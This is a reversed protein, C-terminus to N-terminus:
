IYLTTEISSYNVVSGDYTRVSITVNYTRHDIPNYTIGFDRSLQYLALMVRQISTSGSVTRTPGDSSGITTNVEATFTGDGVPTGAWGLTVRVTDTDPDYEIGTASVTIGNTFRVLSLDVGVAGPLPVPTNSATIDDNLDFWYTGLNQLGGADLAIGRSWASRLLVITAKLGNQPSTWPGESSQSGYVLKHTNAVWTGNVYANNYFLPRPAHNPDDEYGLATIYHDVIICPYTRALLAQRDEQSGIIFESLDVGYPNANVPDSYRVAIGGIGNEYNYYGVASGDDGFSAFPNPDANQRYEVFDTRRFTENESLGRPYRYLFESDHVNEWTNTHQTLAALSIEIGYYIGATQDSLPGKWMDGTLRGVFPKKVGNELLYYRIPKYKAWKNIKGQEAGHVILGGVSTYGLGIVAQIDAIEVGKNPTTTTDIYIRGNSDHAM